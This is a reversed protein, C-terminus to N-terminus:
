AGRFQLAFGAFLAGAARAERQSLDLVTDGIEYKVRGNPPYTVSQARDDARDECPEFIGAIGGALRIRGLAKLYKVRDDVITLSLGTAAALTARSCARGMEHHELVSRYVLDTSSIKPAQEEKEAARHGPSTPPEVQESATTPALHEM